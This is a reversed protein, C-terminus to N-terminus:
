AEADATKRVWPKRPLRALMQAATLGSVPHRWSPAIEALPVLVFRREPLRPHPLIPERARVTRGVDLLDIDIVRPGNRFTPARGLHKEIRKVGSLLSAATGSWAISAM